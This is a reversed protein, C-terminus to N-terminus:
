RASRLGKQKKGTLKSKKKKSEVSIQQQLEKAKQIPRSDTFAAIVQAIVKQGKEDFWMEELWDTVEEYTFDVPLEKVVCNNLLGAHILDAAFQSTVLEGEINAVSKRGILEAAYMGFKLGREKGGITIAIYGNM